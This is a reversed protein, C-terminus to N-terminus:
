TLGLAELLFAYEFATQRLTEYRGSAGNHGANMHTRLLIKNGGTATARLKAVWKAPEWYQVRPDYLGATVLLHPYERAEVNEYPSYSRLRVFDDPVRPDGWEELETVTLPLSRDLMTNLVDVFPVHAIAARALGPRRNLVAGILLGGASGGIMALRDHGTYGLEVLHEAAAVFDDFTNTKAALKGAEHWAEGYIGSGRVHATAWVVGRDLLPLRAAAFAPDVTTGYAGYGYLVCPRRGDRALDRRYVLTIPVAEGDGARAYIRETRYLEPDYGPVPQRKRLRLKRSEFGHDYVSPPTVPSTYAFRYFGADFDYNEAPLVSHIPEPMPVLHSAARGPDGDLDLVRLWRLGATREGVVLHHRFAHIWEIKVGDAPPLLERWEERPAPGVGPEGTEGRRVPVRYLRFGPAGEDTRLFFADPHHDLTYEVGERRPLFIRPPATPEATEVFRIESSRSSRSAIMVLEGSRSRSVTVAFRADEERFVVPDGAPDSGLAHRRVEWPREAADLLVYFLTTDDAWAFTRAVAPIEDPLHEGTAPDLIRLSFRERGTTDLTYALLEGGPSPAQSGLRLFAHGEAMRDLDLLVQEPGEEGPGVHAEGDAGRPAPRRFYVPYERGPETRSYYLHDGRRHPVSRDAEQVHYLLEQYLSEELEANAATMAATYANEADLYARVAPDDRNRLWHYPDSVEVGHIRTVHPRREAVPPTQSMARAPAAAGAGAELASASRSGDRDVADGPAVLHALRALHDPNSPDHSDTM